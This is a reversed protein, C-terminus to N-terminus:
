ALTDTLSGSAITLSDGLATTKPVTLAGYTTRRATASTWLEIGNVTIAPMNTFTVAANSALVGNTSNAPTATSVNQAAYTSGGSNAVETGNTSATGNASMLRCMIPTPAALYTAKGWKADMLRAAEAQDLPM